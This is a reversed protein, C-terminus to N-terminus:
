LLLINIAPPIAVELDDVVVVVVVVAVVVVVVVCLFCVFLVHAICVFCGLSVYSVMSRLMGYLPGHFAGTRLMDVLVAVTFSACVSLSVANPRSLRM